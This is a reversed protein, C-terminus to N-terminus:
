AVGAPGLLLSERPGLVVMGVIMAVVMELFHPRPALRHQPDLDTEQRHDRPSGWSDLSPELSRHAPGTGRRHIRRARAAIHGALHMADLADKIVQM